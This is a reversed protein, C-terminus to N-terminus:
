LEGKFSFYNRIAKQAGVLHNGWHIQFHLKWEWFAEAFMKREFLILGRKLDGYIDALDDSLLAFVPNEDKEDSADFIEWYGDIPLDSFRNRAKDWLVNQRIKDKEFEKLNEVEEWVAKAEPLQLIALHIEALYSEAKALEFLPESFDSEAWDCFQRAKKAFAELKKQFKM